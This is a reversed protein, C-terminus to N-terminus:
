TNIDIPSLPNENIKRISREDKLFKGYDDDDDNNFKKWADKKKKVEGFLPLKGAM